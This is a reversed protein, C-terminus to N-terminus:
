DEFSFIVTIDRGLGIEALDKHLAFAKEFSQEFMLNEAEVRALHCNHGVNDKVAYNTDNNLLFLDIPFNGYTEVAHFGRDEGLKILSDRTFYFNHEGTKETVWFPRDIKKLKYLRRQLVSFDNPVSVAILTKPHCVKRISAFFEEEDSVHELVHDATIFDFTKKEEAFKDLITYINGQIVKDAISPNCHKVAYISFDIGTVDYGEQSFVNLLHGEGCGLDLLKKCKASSLKQFRLELEKAKNRFYLIEADTYHIDYSGHGDQYYENEYFDSLDKRYEPKLKYYGSNEGGGVIHQSKLVVYEDIPMM